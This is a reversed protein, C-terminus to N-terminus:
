AAHRRAVVPQELQVLQQEAWRVGPNLRLHDRYFVAQQAAPLRDVHAWDYAHEVLDYAIWRSLWESLSQGLFVVTGPQEARGAPGFQDHDLVAISGRPGTPPDVCYVIADGFVGEAFQFYRRGCWAPQRREVFDDFAEDEMSVWRTEDLPLLYVTRLEYGHHGYVGDVWGYLARIELPLPDTLQQQHADVRDWECGGPALPLRDACERQALSHATEFLRALVTKLPANREWDFM